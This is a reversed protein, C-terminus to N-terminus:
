LRGSVGFYVPVFESLGHRNAALYICLGFPLLIHRMTENNKSLSRTRTRCPITYLPKSFNAPHVSINVGSQGAMGSSRRPTIGPFRCARDYISGIGNRCVSRKLARGAAAPSRSEPLKAPCTDRCPVVRFHLRHKRADQM